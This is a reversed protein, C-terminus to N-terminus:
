DSFSATHEARYAETEIWNITGNKHGLNLQMTGELSSNSESSLTGFREPTNLQRINTLLDLRCTCTVDSGQDFFATDPPFRGTM